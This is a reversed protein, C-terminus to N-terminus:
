EWEELEKLAQYKHYKRELDVFMGLLFPINDLDDNEWLKSSYKSIEKLQCDMEESIQGLFDVLCEETGVESNFTKNRLSLELKISSEM